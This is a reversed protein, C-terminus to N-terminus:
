ESQYRFHSEGSVVPLREASAPGDTLAPECTGTHNRSRNRGAATWVPALDDLRTSKERPTAGATRIRDERVDIRTAGAATAHPLGDGAPAPTDGGPVVHADRRQLPDEHANM